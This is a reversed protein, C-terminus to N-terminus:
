DKFKEIFDKLQGLYSERLDRIKTNIKTQERRIGQVVGSEFSTQPQKNPVKLDLEKKIETLLEDIIMYSDELWDTQRDASLFKWNAKRGTKRESYRTFLDRTIEELSRM